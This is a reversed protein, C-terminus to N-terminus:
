VEAQQAFDTAGTILSDLMHEKVSAVSNDIVNSYRMVLKTPHRSDENMISVTLTSSSNYRLRREVTGILKNDHKTNIYITVKMLDNMYAPVDEKFTFVLQEKSDVVIPSEFFKEKLFQVIPLLKGRTRFASDIVIPKDDKNTSPM